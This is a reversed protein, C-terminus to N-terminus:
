FGGPKLNKWYDNTSLSTPGSWIKTSEKFTWCNQGSCVSQAFKAPNSWASVPNASIPFVSSMSVPEGSNLWKSTSDDFQWCYAGNCNTIIKTTNNVWSVMPGSLTTSSGLRWPLTGDSAAAHIATGDTKTKDVMWIKSVDYPAASNNWTNTTTNYIWCFRQNCVTFTKKVPNSWASTPGSNSWPYKLVSDTSSKVVWERSLDIPYGNNLWTNRVDDWIWCYQTNCTYVRNDSVTEWGSTPGGNTWPLVCPSDGVLNLFYKHPKAEASLSLKGGTVSISTKQASCQDDVRVEFSGDKLNSVSVNAPLDPDLAFSFKSVPTNVAAVLIYTGNEARLNWTSDQSHVDRIEFYNGNTMLLAPIRPRIQTYVGSGSIQPDLGLLGRLYVQAFAVHENYWAAGLTGYVSNPPINEFNAPYQQVGIPVKAFRIFKKLYGLTTNKDGQQFLDQLLQGAAGSYLGPGEWDARTCASTSQGSNNGGQTSYFGWPGVFKPVNTLMRSKEDATLFGPFGLVSLVPEFYFKYTSGEKVKFWGDTTGINEWLKSKVATKINESWGAHDSSKSYEGLYGFMDSLQRHAMYRDANPVIVKGYYDTGVNCGSEWNLEYLYSTSSRPDDLKFDTLLSSGAIVKAPDPDTASGIRLSQGAALAAMQNTLKELLDIVRYVRGNNTVKQILFSKDGTLRVYEWAQRTLSVASYAYSYKDNLNDGLPTFIKKLEFDMTLTRLMQSKWQAADAMPFFMDTGVTWPFFGVSKAKQNAQSVWRGGFLDYSVLLYQLASNYYLKELMPDSSSVKPLHSFLITLKNNWDDDVIKESDATKLKEAVMKWQDEVEAQSGGVFGLYVANVSSGAPTQTDPGFAWGVSLGAPDTPLSDATNSLRSNSNDKFPVIIKTYADAKVASKWTLHTGAQFNMGLLFYVSGAANDQKLILYNRGNVPDPPQVVVIKGITGTQGTWGWTDSKLLNPLQSLWLLEFQVPQASINTVNLKVAFGRVVRSDMLGPFAMKTGKVRVASLNGNAGGTGTYLNEVVMKGPYWYSTADPVSQGNEYAWEGGSKKIILGTNFSNSGYNPINEPSYTNDTASLYPPAIFQGIHGAMPITQWNDPYKFKSDVFESLILGGSFAQLVHQNGYLDAINRSNTKYYEVTPIGNILNPDPAAAAQTTVQQETKILSIGAGLSFVLVLASILALFYKKQKPSVKVAPLSESPIPPIIDEPM